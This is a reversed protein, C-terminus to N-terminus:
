VETIHFGESDWWTRNSDILTLTNNDNKQFYQGDVAIPRYQGFVFECDDYNEGKIPQIDYLKGVELKIKTM